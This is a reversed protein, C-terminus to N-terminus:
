EAAGTVAATSGVEPPGADKPRDGDDDWRRRGLAWLALDVLPTYGMAGAAKRQREPRGLGEFARGGVFPWRLLAWKLLWPRLLWHSNFAIGAVVWRLIAWPLGLGLYLSLHTYRFLIALVGRLEAGRRAQAAIRRGVDDFISYAVPVILLSIVLSLAQGGIIVKAMSARAAAGPGEAIAIPIMGVILTLTTMLIPRLRAHNAELIAEDRGLGRRRLTNTYDIQLIGNKKVVGALMFLGLGSYLNFSEGLFLLSLLACPFALPLSLLITIPHLFSEFQAALIMYMFLFALLFGVVFNSDMEKFIKLPGGFEYTYQESMVGQAKLKAMIKVIEGVARGSDQQYLNSFVTVSRQRGIRLIEQPGRGERLSTIEGLRVIGARSSGMPLQAISARSRRDAQEVRLWIDYQEAGEQFRGIRQGGVLARVSLAVEGARVGLDTARERDIQVQVEPTRKSLTTDVDVFGKVAEMEAKVRESLRYLESLHPGKIDIVIAYSGGPRFEVFNLKLGPYKRSLKRADAIVATQPFDRDELDVLNVWINGSTVDDGGRKSDGIIAVTSKIGRLRRVDEEVQRFITESERLSTGEPMEVQVQFQSRDDPPIFERGLAKFILPTSAVVLASSVLVVWRHRMSFRLLRGWARDIVEYFYNRPHGGPRIRLWKSCLMPTLVFSVILSVFIAFAVTVGYSHWFKGPRGSMFAIPLFIVILSFTTALVALAIEKLGEIAAQMPPKGEVEMKRHINELVVIADDIVIGVSITLALMTMNNLTFGMAKVLAFTTIISTPIALAAIITARLDRIFFYCVLSALIAGILLHFQVEEISKRIFTGQEWSTEVRIDPPIIARVLKMRENVRDLLEVTNGGSQKMVRLVVAPREGDERTWVRSASRPDEYTDEVRGIDALTVQRGARESVVLRNFDAVTEMRAMTRLGTERDGADIRGGPIDVHQARIAAGVQQASLGHAEMRKSDVVVNIARKWGGSVDVKGVGDVTELIPKVQREAIERLTRPDRPGYVVLFSVPMADLDWKFVVPPDVGSPLERLARSVRDRVDQVCEQGNKELLFTATISSVGELSYSRLEDIGGITNIAEELPRTVQTEIEEPGAGRLTTTVTVVPMDVQPLWDVGLGRYSLLGIVVLFATVMSAFVPRRIFVVFANM